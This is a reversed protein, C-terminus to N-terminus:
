LIPRSGLPKYLYFYENSNEKRSNFKEWKLCNWVMETCWVCFLSSHSGLIISWVPFGTWKLICIKLTKKDEMKAEIRGRWHGWQQMAARGQDRWCEMSWGCLFRVGPLASRVTYIPRPFLWLPPLFLPVRSSFDSILSDERGQMAAGAYKYSLCAWSRYPGQYPIHRPRNSSYPSISPVVKFLQGM